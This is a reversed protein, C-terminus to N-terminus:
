YKRTALYITAKENREFCLLFNYTDPVLKYRKEITQSNLNPHRSVVSLRSKQLRKKTTKDLELTENIEFVKGPFGEKYEESVLFGNAETLGFKGALFGNVRLKKFAPNPDYVFHPNVCSHSSFLASRVDFLAENGDMIHHVFTQEKSALDFHLLLDKLENNVVVLHVDFAFDKWQAKLMDIDLMPSLKLLLGINKSKCLSPLGSVDPLYNEMVSVRQQKDDVRSPDAYFLDGSEFNHKAWYDEATSLICTVNSKERFNFKATEHVQLSPEIHVLLKDEQMYYADIGFGGCLDVIRKYPRSIQKKVIATVSSSSQAANIKEPPPLFAFPTQCLPPFKKASHLIGLYTKGIESLAVGQFHQSSFVLKEWDKIQNKGFKKSFEPHNLASLIAEANTKFPM